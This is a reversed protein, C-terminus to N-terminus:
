VWRNRHYHRSAACPPINIYLTTIINCSVFTASTKSERERILSHSCYLLLLPPYCICMTVHSYKLYYSKGVLLNLQLLPKARIGYESCTRRARKSKNILKKLTILELNILFLNFFILAEQLFEYAQDQSIM